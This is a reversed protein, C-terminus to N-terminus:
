VFLNSAEALSTNFAYESSNLDSLTKSGVAVFVIISTVLFSSSLCVVIALRRWLISFPLFM